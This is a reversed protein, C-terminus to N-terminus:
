KHCPFTVPGKGEAKGLHDSARKGIGGRSEHEGKGIYWIEGDTSTYIYVGNSGAKPIVENWQNGAHYKGICREIVLKPCVWKFSSIYKELFEWIKEINM